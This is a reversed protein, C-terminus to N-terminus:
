RHLTQIHNAVSRAARHAVSICAPIGVGDYTAGCVALGPVTAIADLVRQMRATHGVAYQPLAGGWRTVLADVPPALVGTLMSFERRVLAVLEDDSRQLDEVQGHRGVSARAILLGPPYGPWKQSSYTLAKISLRAIAPVLMGSGPPFRAGSSADFALTIIALSAAEVARLEAAAPPCADGLLAAAKGAPTAVLVADAHLTEREPVAGIELLFGTPTRRISRVPTNLRVEFGGSSAVATALRGIGGVLSAFVPGNATASSRSVAQAATGLSGGERLKMALAGMTAQVSLGDARGAYVGGLLPDVLREVVERGLRATVLEGVSIDDVVPEAPESREAAIRALSADSLVGSARVAELDAPIGMMTGAPLPHASAESWLSASSVAPHVIQDSLGLTSALALGEPRRALMTEAGLDVQVGAVEGSRLKGGASATAELVVIRAQPLLLHLEHAAALGSIGAGIVAIRFPEEGHNGESLNSESVPGDDVTDCVPTCAVM